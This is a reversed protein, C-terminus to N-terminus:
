APTREAAVAANITLQNKAVRVGPVRAIAREVDEAQRPSAVAGYLTVEGLKSRAYVRAHALGERLIATGIASELDLDDVARNDVSVVGPVRRVLTALYERSARVQVNGTLTVAGGEVSAHVYRKDDPMLNRDEVIVRKIQELIDDDFHYEALEGPASTFQLTAGQFGVRSLPVRYTTFGRSVLVEAVQYHGNVNLLAGAFRLGGSSLPTGSSVPRAPAAVPPVERAFAKYSTAAIHVAGSGLSKVATMPLRVSQQSFFTGSSITLNLVEWQETIDLASVKGKWRDEFCVASGLRLPVLKAALEGGNRKNDEAYPM